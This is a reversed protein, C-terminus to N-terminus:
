SIKKLYNKFYIKDQPFEELHKDIDINHKNIMHKMYAGSKNDIDKFEHGCIVCEVFDDIDRYIFEFYDHYWYKFTKYLIDKRKYHSPIELDPFLELLHTTISGSRNDHDFFEKGTKKCVAILNKGDIEKYPNNLNFEYSNLEKQVKTLSCELFKAIKRMSIGKGYLEKALEIDLEFKEKM